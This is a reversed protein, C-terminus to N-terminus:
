LAHFSAQAVFFDFVTRAATLLTTIVYTRVYTRVYPPVSPVLLSLFIIWIGLESRERPYFVL